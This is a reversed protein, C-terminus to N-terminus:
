VYVDLLMMWVVGVVQQFFNFGTAIYESQFLM